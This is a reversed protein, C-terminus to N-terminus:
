LEPFGEGFLARLYVTTTAADGDLYANIAGRSSSAAREVPYGAEIAGALRPAARVPQVLSPSSPDPVAVLGADALAEWVWCLDWLRNFSPQQLAQRLAVTELYYSSVPVGLRHKWALLLRVLERVSGDDDIRSLLVGRAAPRCLVWHRAADVVWVGAATAGPADPGGGAAHEYAPLLRIGAAGAGADGPVVLSDGQVEATSAAAPDLGALMAELAKAPSRPRSGRLVVIADFLSAGAVATGHAFSGADLATLALGGAVLPAVLERASAAAAAVERESPRLSAAFGALADAVEDVM